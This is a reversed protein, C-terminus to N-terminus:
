GKKESCLFLSQLVAGDRDVYNTHYKYTFVTAVGFRPRQHWKCVVQRHVEVGIVSFCVLSKLSMVFSHSWLERWTLTSIWRLLFIAKVRAYHQIDTKYYTISRSLLHQLFPHQTFLPAPSPSHFHPSFSLTSPPIAPIRANDTFSFHEGERGAALFLRLRHSEGLHGPPDSSGQSGQASSGSHLVIGPVAVCM